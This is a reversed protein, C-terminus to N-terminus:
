GGLDSIKTMTISITVTGYLLSLVEEMDYTCIGTATIPSADTNFTLKTEAVLFGSIAFALDIAEWFDIDESIDPMNPDIGVFSGTSEDFSGILEMTGDHSRIAMGGNEQTVTVTMSYEAVEPAETYTSIVDFSYIGEVSEEGLSMITDWIEPPLTGILTELEELLGFIAQEMAEADVSYRDADQWLEQTQEPSLPAEAIEPSEFLAEPAPLGASEIAAKAEEDSKGAVDVQTVTVSSDGEGGFVQIGLVKGEYVLDVISEGIYSITGGAESISTPNLTVLGVVASVPALVDKVENIKATTVHDEGMIITSGTSAVDVVADVGGLILAGAEGVGVSTAGMAGLSGGGTLIAAGVFLGVKCGTKTAMAIKMYKDMKDAESMASDHIISQALQFQKYVERVDEGMNEALQKLKQGGKIADYKRTLDEAWEQPTQVTGGAALLMIGGTEGSRFSTQTIGNEELANLTLEAIIQTGSITKDLESWIEELDNVMREAEQLTMQTFDATIFAELKVRGYVYHSVALSIAKELPRMEDPLAPVRVTDGQNLLNGTASSNTPENDGTKQGNGACACLSLLLVLVLLGSIMRKM